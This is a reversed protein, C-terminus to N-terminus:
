VVLSNEGIIVITNSLFSVNAKQPFVLPVKYMKLIFLFLLNFQVKYLVIFSWLEGNIDITNFSVNFIAM